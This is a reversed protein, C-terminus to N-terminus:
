EAAATRVAELARNLFIETHQRKIAVEVTKSRDFTELMRRISEERPEPMETLPNVVHTKYRHGDKMPVSYNLVLPM